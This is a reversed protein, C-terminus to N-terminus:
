KNKIKNLYAVMDIKKKSNSNSTIKSNNSKEKKVLDITVSALGAKLKKPDSNNNHTTIYGSKTKVTNINNVIAPAKITYRSYKNSNNVDINKKSQNILSSQNSWNSSTHSYINMQKDSKYGDYEEDSLLLASVINNTNKEFSESRKSIEQLPPEMIMVDLEHDHSSNISNLSSNYNKFM